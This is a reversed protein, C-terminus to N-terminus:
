RESSLVEHIMQQVLGDISGTALGEYTKSWINRFTRTDSVSATILDGFGIQFNVLYDAGLNAACVALSTHKDVAFPKEGAFSVDLRQAAVHVSATVAIKEILTLKEQSLGDSYYTIAYSRGATRSESSHDATDYAAVHPGFSKSSDRITAIAQREDRLWDEFEEEQAIDIGELFEGRLNAVRSHDRVDVEVAALNIAIAEQSISLLTPAAEGLIRRLNAIERRLSAQAHARDRSGWIREQLWRRSREGSHSTALMAILIRSRKSPIQIRAGDASFLRFAGLLDLRYKSRNNM